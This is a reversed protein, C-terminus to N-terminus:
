ALVSKNMTAIKARLFRAWRRGLHAAMRRYSSANANQQARKEPSIEDALLLDTSGQRIAV